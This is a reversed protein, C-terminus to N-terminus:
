ISLRAAAHRVRLARGRVPWNPAIKTLPRLVFDRNVLERHPIELKRGRWRGASWLAIDLDLVRPGWRRGRRRGFGVEIAELRKLSEMIQGAAAGQQHKAHEAGIHRWDEVTGDRMDTFMTPM